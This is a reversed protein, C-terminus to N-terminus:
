EPWNMQIIQAPTQGILRKLSKTLHPQDTYGTQFVVEMISVGQRLLAVAQQAREIYRIYRQSVGITQQFRRQVSRLSMDEPHGQLVADVVPDCVLLGARVLRGVFTDVNEYTPFQWTFGGLWFTKSKGEHLLTGTDLMTNTPLRPMFTGLKFRIGICELGEAYHIPTAKTTPGCLLVNTTAAQRSILIDWGADAAAVYHGNNETWTHWITQVFPSDSLRDEYLFSM